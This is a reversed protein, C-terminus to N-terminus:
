SRRSRNMEMKALIGYGTWPIHPMMLDSVADTVHFGGTIPRRNCRCGTAFQAERTTGAHYLWLACNQMPPRRKQELCSVAVPMMRTTIFFDPSKAASRRRRWYIALRGPLTSSRGNCRRRCPREMAHHHSSWSM